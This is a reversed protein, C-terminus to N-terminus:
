LQSHFPMAVWESVREWLSRKRFEELTYPRANALDAHFVAEMERGFAEDHVTVDLEENIQSSRADLNSSGFISFVGDVVMTKSHIMTPQYEYIKVGGELLRGYATRGAAKTIPQDNHEGPLLLRVDVGRKVAAVLLDVQDESPTCYANTIFINKVASSIAVAQVLPLPAYSFSHSAVVQARLNGAPELVPFEDPGSLAENTEKAWHQQFAAQLKAVLPGEIRAHVERWHDKSAADGLWQDAFGAGGTFGIRGDVVLVRRHSRRNTRDVRWSRTPHYYAFHCGAQKMIEVDEDKLQAGSGVGDLLVRVKVGARAREALADRFQSGVKGSNYLFAEFNISKRGARIAELMAPFFQDGNHLLEIKNGSVPLPDSLAHASGFFEPARLDFVHQPRYEVLQRRVFLLSLISIGALVLLLITLWAAVPLKWWKKHLFRSARSM